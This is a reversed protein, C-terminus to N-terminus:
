GDASISGGTLIRFAGETDLEGGRMILTTIDETTGSPVNVRGDSKITISGSNPIETGDPGLQLVASGAAGIGDGVFVTPSLGVDPTDTNLFLTGDVVTTIGTFANATRNALELTGSGLKFLSGAVSGDSIVGSLTLRTD